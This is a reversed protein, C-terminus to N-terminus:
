SGLTARIADSSSFGHAVPCAGGRKAPKARARECVLAANRTVRSCAQASAPHVANRLLCDHVCGRWQCVGREPFRGILPFTLVFTEGEARHRNKKTEANLGVTQVYDRLRLTTKALCLIQSQRRTHFLTDITRGQPEMESNHRRGDNESVVLRVITWEPLPM